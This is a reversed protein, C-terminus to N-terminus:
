KVVVIRKAPLGEAKLLYVGAAPLHLILYESNQAVMQRGQIDYLEVRLRDPNAVTVTLGHTSVRLNDKGVAEIGQLEEFIAILVTDQTITFVLPNDTSGNSWEVFTAIPRPIARLTVTDGPWYRGGGTVDGMTIDNPSVAVNMQEVSALIARIFWTGRYDDRTRWGSSSKYWTGDDNGRYSGYVAPFISSCDEVHFTVWLTRNDPVILATDLLFTHWCNLGNSDQINYSRSFALTADSISDGLYINLVYPSAYKVYLQVASLQKRSHRAVSPLRIGWDCPATRSERWSSRQSGECYALTDEHLPEFIATDSLNELAIFDRPNNMSGSSWRLFRCGEAALALVGVSDLLPQYTGSGLVRGLTTDNPVMNVVVPSTLSLSDMPRIGLIATADSSFNFSGGVSRTSALSDILFFGNCEGNWGWNVHFFGLSDYGDIVFGHGGQPGYGSYIVPRREDMENRIMATWQNNSFDDKYFSTLSQSYRFNYKLANEISPVFINDFSSSYAGSGYYSYMMEISVGVHFLLQAVANVAVSDSSATLNDTMHQWDYTTSGFDAYLPGFVYTNGDMELVSTYSHSGMGTAPHNWYKMVQGMAVAACGVKVYDNMSSDFPCWTNYYPYQSWTTTLLPDIHSGTSKPSAQLWRQWDAAVEPSAEEGAAVRAAIDHEYGEFWERIHEPMNEYDFNNTYSYALVPRVCDDTSLLLFGTVGVPHFLMMEGHAGVLQMTAGNPFFHECIRNLKDQQVPKAMAVSSVVFAILLSCINKLRMSYLYFIPVTM